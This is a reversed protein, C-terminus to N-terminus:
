HTLQAEAVEVRDAAGLNTIWLLVAGGSRGRLDFTVSGQVGTQKAVPAGWGDLASPPQGAVYVSAAWARSSPTVKLHALTTPRDLRLVLGVGSKLNGFTPSTYTQTTWVTAPDGDIAKPADANHEDHDGEPDFAAAAAIRLPVAGTAGGSGPSSHLLDHGVQTRSFLLGALALALAVAVIIATPVLWTRESQRFSPVIGEPPTRERTVIPVADDEGLDVSLLASRLEGVTGFGGAPALARLVVAELPRPIGARVQRPPLVTDGAEPERGCLMRYLLAGLARVDVAPVPDAAAAAMGADTLKPHGDSTVLVNAATVAGHAIGRRHAHELAEAVQVAMQAARVPSLAGDRQLRDAVTTGRVLEMVIFSADGDTGTDFISVLNPHGLGAARVAAERFRAAFAPDADPRLIKVAVPRALVEDHAEWVEAAGTGGIARTLRYRGALVRETAAASADPM